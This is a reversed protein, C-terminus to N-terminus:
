KYLLYPEKLKRFVELSDHCSEIFDNSTRQLIHNRLSKTGALLDFFYKDNVNSIFEFDNPYMDAITELLIIGAQLSNLKYRNEVHLQIGSCLVDKHKQYFPIFSTPRAIVGPINKQNFEKALHQGNIFPAGVFEFPRTTGRGESLNTGEILCTGPYLISMDMNTTNPSPPVWFLGTEDFYMERDWGQMAVVTLECDFGYENNFLLALEAVTMGHRNPIPLLGVFSRVDDEVLNGEMRTGSIPNPRDLVVFHKGLEKCAKMVYAMTYIFTYYRSGIDQLDFVLVDVQELMEKTPKRTEGYLSYVPLGTSPDVMSEVKEGERADGRIGHEPAYLATLEIEPHEHFLDISPILRENVGTINTVLGIKQGKFQKYDQELFIDLGLKM